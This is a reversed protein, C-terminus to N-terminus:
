RGVGSESVPDLTGLSDKSGLHLQLHGQIRAKRDEMEWTSRNCANVVKQPASFHGYPKVYELHGYYWGVWM